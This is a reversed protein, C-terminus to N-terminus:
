KQDRPDQEEEDFISEEIEAIGAFFSGVLLLTVVSVMMFAKIFEQEM